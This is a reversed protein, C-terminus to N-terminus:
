RDTGSGAHAGPALWRWGRRVVHLVGGLVLLASTSFLGSAGRLAGTSLLGYVRCSLLGGSLLGGSLLGGSLLGSAAAATSASTSAAAAACGLGSALSAWWEAHREGVPGNDKMPM